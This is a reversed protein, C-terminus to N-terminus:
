LLGGAALVIGLLAVTLAIGGVLGASLVQILVRRDPRLGILTDQGPRVHPVHNPLGPWSDTTHCGCGCGPCREHAGVDCSASIADADM